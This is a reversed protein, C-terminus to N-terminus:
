GYSAMFDKKWAAVNLALTLAPLPKGGRKLVTDVISRFVAFIDAGRDSRFEGSVKQKVKINRIARESANNDPPVGPDFLFTFIEHRYKILRKQLAHEKKTEHEVSRSLLEHFRQLIGDREPCRHYDIDRMRKKLEMASFLIERVQGAWRSKDKEVFLALERTIHALCLQHAKAPTKLQAGLSDSVYVAGPFGGPFNERVTDHGRSRSHSIYTAGATQWTWAWRKRGNVRLGTEDGGVVGSAAVADRIGSYLPDLLRASRDLMNAVTGQSMTIGAIGELLETLRAMPIFQRTSLYCVLSCLNNGYQVPAKVTFPFTGKHCYGCGCRAGYARHETVIAEIPPIDVVQRRELVRFDSPGFVKSCGPCDLGPFHDRVIGPTASMELTSGRHGLQGGSKRGSKGKNGSGGKPYRGGTLDKSPPLSSNRSTTPKKLRGVEKELSVVEKELSAVKAELTVVLSALSEVMSQLSLIIDILEDKDKAELQKRTFAVM